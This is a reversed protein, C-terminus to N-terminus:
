PKLSDARERLITLWLQLDAPMAAEFALSEGTKPHRFGLMAAHLAPRELAPLGSLRNRRSRGYVPDCHIPLGISALHVRIQHTRGTQPRIELWATSHYPFREAIRWNTRASRGSRSRTSMKKRDRVHRGVPKDITGSDPGPQGRVFASYIREISHDHFQIALGHHTEDNKAVVMVGSTGRDLRHVIGPRLVGGIGALDGCHHLLGNVLTGGPHGPGPHVVLGAPKNIVILDHDEHLVDLTMSEPEVEMAVPLPPTVELRAGLRVKRSAQVVVREDLQVRGRTIWNTVRSRSIGLLQTLARDLRDGALEEAVVFYLSASEDPASHEAIGRDPRDTAM